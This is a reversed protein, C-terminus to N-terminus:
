AVALLCIRDCARGHGSGSGTVHIDLNCRKTSLGLTHTTMKSGKSITKMHTLTPALRIPIAKITINGPFLRSDELTIRKKVAIKTM